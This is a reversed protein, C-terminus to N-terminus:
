ERGVSLKAAGIPAPVAGYALTYILACLVACALFAPIQRLATM